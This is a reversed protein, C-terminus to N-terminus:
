SELPVVRSLGSKVYTRGRPAEPEGEDCFRRRMPKGGSRSLLANAVFRGRPDRPDPAAPELGPPVAPGPLRTRSAILPPASHASRTHAVPPRAPQDAFPDAAAHTSASAPRPPPPPARRTASLTAPPAPAPSPAPIRVSGRRSRTVPVVSPAPASARGLAANTRTVPVVSRTPPPPAPASARGLAANTRTALVSLHASRSQRPSYVNPIHSFSPASFSPTSFSSTGFASHATHMRYSSVAM